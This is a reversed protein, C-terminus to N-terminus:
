CKIPVNTHILKRKYKLLGSKLIKNLSIIKILPSVSLPELTIPPQYNPPSIQKLLYTYAISDKIDPGFNKVERGPYGSRSLHYNMWRLLLEERTLKLLDEKTEGDRLM